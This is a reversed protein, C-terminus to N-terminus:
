FFYFKQNFFVIFLYIPLLHTITSSLASLIFYNVNCIVILLLYNHLYNQNM